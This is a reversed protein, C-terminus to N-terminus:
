LISYQVQFLDKADNGAKLWNTTVQLDPHDMYYMDFHKFKQSSIIKPFVADLQQARQTTANRWTANTNL